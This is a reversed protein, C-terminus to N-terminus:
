RGAQDFGRREPLHGVAGVLDGDVEGGHQEPIRRQQSVADAQARVRGPRRGERDGRMWSM